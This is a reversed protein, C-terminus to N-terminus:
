VHIAAALGDGFREPVVPLSRSEGRAFRQATWAVACADLLDDPGYAPTRGVEPLRLGADRLAALRIARGEASKKSPATDAGMAAFSVEPHVELVPVGVGDRVWADVEAIKRCLHFGQHSLGKGSARRQADNAEQWTTASVATRVPTPFVSSKRGVPLERRAEVDAQRAGTDPLGLPIDIGVVEPALRVTSLLRSITGGVCLEVRDDVLLAGVWGGRCGDVGLVPRTTM